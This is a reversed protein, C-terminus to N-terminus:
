LESVYVVVLKYDTKYICYKECAAFLLETISPEYINGNINGDAKCIVMATLATFVGRKCFTQVSNRLCNSWMQEKNFCCKFESALWKDLFFM